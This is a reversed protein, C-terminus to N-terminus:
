YLISPFLLFISQLNLHLDFLLCFSFTCAFVAFILLILRIGLNDENYELTTLGTSMDKKEVYPIIYSSEFLWIIIILGLNMETPKNNTFVAVLSLLITLVIVVLKVQKAQPKKLYLMVSNSELCSHTPDSKISPCTM